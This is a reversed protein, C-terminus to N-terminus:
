PYLKRLQAATHICCDLNPNVSKNQMTRKHEIQNGRAARKKLEAIRATNHRDRMETM